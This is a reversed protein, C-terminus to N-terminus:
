SFIRRDLFCKIRNRPLNKAYPLFVSYKSSFDYTGGASAYDILISKKGQYSLEVKDLCDGCALRRFTPLGNREARLATPFVPHLDTYRRDLAYTLPGKTVYLVGGDYRSLPIRALVYDADLFIEIRETKETLSLIVYGGIEAPAVVTGNQTVTYKGCWAPIRIRLTRKENSIFECEFLVRGDTPYDTTERISGEWSVTQNEFYNVTLTNGNKIVANEAFVGVGTPSIATCCSYISGDAFRQMGGIPLISRKWGALPSYWDVPLGHTKNRHSPNLVGLYANYFAKEVVDLYRPNDTVKYLESLYLMVSVTVCTEQMPKKRPTTQNVVGFNYNETECGAGGAVTIEDAIVYSAFQECVDLIEKNGTVKGYELYGEFCSTMEYAKTYRFSSPHIGKKISEFINYDVICGTSIIYEAFDLYKKNQTKEYLLVFAKLVSASNLGGWNSSCACINEYQKGAGIRDVLYSLHRELADLIQKKLADSRCIDYFYELGVAVYKRCWIDWSTLECEDRYASFKGSERQTSLLDIVTKELTAYLKEDETARYILCAGRMIKGWYEGRYHGSRDIPYRFANVLRAWLVDDGVQCDIFFRLANRILNERRQLM